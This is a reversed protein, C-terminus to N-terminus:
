KREGKRLLGVRVRVGPIGYEKGKVVRCVLADDKWAGSDTIGDFIARELKDIDPKTTPFERTVTKGRQLFFELEVAVADVLQPGSYAAKAAAAVNKRWPKLVKDNDDYLVPRVGYKTGPAPILKAAKSGQPAPIGAVFFSFVLDATM